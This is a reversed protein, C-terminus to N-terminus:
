YLLDTLPHMVIFSESFPRKGKTKTLQNIDVTYTWTLMKGEGVREGRLFFFDCFDDTKLNISIINKCLDSLCEVKSLFRKLWLNENSM